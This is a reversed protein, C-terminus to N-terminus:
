NVYGLKLLVSQRNYILGNEAYNKLVENAENSLVGRTVEIGSRKLHDYSEPFM